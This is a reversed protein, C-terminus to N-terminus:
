DEGEAPGRLACQDRDRRVKERAGVPCVLCAGAARPSMEGPEEILDFREAVFCLELVRPAADYQERVAHAIEGEGGANLGPKQAAAGGRNEVVGHERCGILDV